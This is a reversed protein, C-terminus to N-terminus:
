NLNEYVLIPVVGFPATGLFDIDGDNGLDGARVNHISDAGLQHAEWGTGRQLYVILRGAGRFESAVVDPLGDRDVDVVALAHVSDLVPAFVQEVWPGTRPDAPARFWSLKGSTESVSLVIDRRGDGNMDIAEVTAFSDWGPTFTRAPWATAAVDGGPNEMWVGGVIIDRRGDANIDAVDLGNLGLGPEVGFSQWSDRTVQLLVTVVSSSEGRMAIDQKGDGNIDAIEIDHTAEYGTPLPHALWSEGGGLSEHWVAGVVVDTDGDGDIDGTASGSQSSASSAIERETWGPAQYWVVPGNGGSVVLDFLGDGNIDAMNKMWPDPPSSADIVVRSFNLATPTPAPVPDPAPAPTPTPIPTPTSTGEDVTPTESDTPSESTSDGTTNSSGGCGALLVACALISTAQRLFLPIEM